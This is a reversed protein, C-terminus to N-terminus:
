VLTFDDKSLQLKPNDLKEIFSKIKILETHPLFIPLLDTLDIKLLRNIIVLDKLSFPSVGNMLESIYSKSKHGLLVGLEEQNLNLRKLKSKILEKRREIFLREKEAIIEASDSERLRKEGIKSKGSWNNSEYDQILDRLKKRVSKLKSNEKALVRLKRDAILAREFDLENLIKGLEIIKEIDFQTEMIKKFGIM